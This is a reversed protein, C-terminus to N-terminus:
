AAGLPSDLQRQLPIVEAEHAAVLGSGIHVLAALDDADWNCLLPDSASLRGNPEGADTRVRGGRRAVTQGGLFHRKGTGAVATLPAGCGPCVGRRYWLRAFAVKDAASM